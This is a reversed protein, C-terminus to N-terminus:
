SSSNENCGAASSSEDATGFQLPDEAAILDHTQMQHYIGGLDETAMKRLTDTAWTRIKQGNRHAAREIADFDDSSFELTLVQKVEAGQLGRIRDAEMLKEIILIAKNPLGRETSLWNNVTQVASDCQQALWARSRNHKKLWTKVEEQKM